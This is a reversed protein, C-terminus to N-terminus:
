HIPPTGGQLQSINISGDCNDYCSPNSVDYNFDLSDNILYYFQIVIFVFMQQTQNLINQRFNM